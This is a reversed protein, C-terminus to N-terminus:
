ASDPCVQGATPEKGLRSHARSCGCTCVQQSVASREAPPRASRRFATSSKLECLRKRLRPRAAVGVLNPMAKVALNRLWTRGAPLAALDAAKGGQWEGSLERQSLVCM